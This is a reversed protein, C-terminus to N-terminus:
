NRRGVRDTESRDAFKLQWDALEVYAAALDLTRAFRLIPPAPPDADRTREYDQRIRDAEIRSADVRLRDRLEPLPGQAGEAAGGETRQLEQWQQLREILYIAANLVDSPDPKGEARSELRNRWRRAREGVVETEDRGTLQELESLDISIPTETPLGMRIKLNDLVVEVTNCSRILTQGSGLMSQELQDVQEQPLASQVQARLEALVQEVYRVRSFFDSRQNGSASLEAVLHLLQDGPQCLVDQPLPRLRALRM